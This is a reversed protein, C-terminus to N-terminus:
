NEKWQTYILSFVDFWSPSRLRTERLCCDRLREDYDWGSIKSLSTLTQHSTNEKKTKSWFGKVEDFFYSSHINIRRSLFVWVEKYSDVLKRPTSKLLFSQIKLSHNNRFGKRIKSTGRYRFVTKGHKDPDEYDSNDLLHFRKRNM